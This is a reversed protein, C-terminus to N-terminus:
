RPRAESLHRAAERRDDFPFKSRGVIQYDEHGKGALVVLDGPRGLSIAHGIAERRDQIVRYTGNAVSEPAGDIRELSRLGDEVDRLISAPDETRPNDSTAVVLDSNRAVAEAMLSRKSPDRDGGCGFLTVLRGPTMSRLALLLKEIADPTHAYDVIVTPQEPDDIGIREMRGPVQPCRRVGEAIVDPDIEFAVAIGCAVLLNELNFDGILPMELDLPRGQLAVRVRSGELRCDSELLRIEAEKDPNRSTQLVRANASRAAQLVKESALDDVNIVATSGPALYRAFLQIKSQLYSEMNGHFDLHDQSLNTFAAVCFQCGTVRGLELGHSSVEMVVAEVDRTIMSRLLRQLDLSEPTTNVAPFAEGAYRIEVTGILGVSFGARSLISEVLHTTSTKGNTGTIGALRLQQSPQGYFQTAVWALARRTDPVVVVPIPTSQSAETAEEVLLAACGLAQAQQLFDHGDVDSGRLAVFLDGQSVSRSDYAIGRIVPDTSAHPPIRQEPTLESPLAKLLESLRM